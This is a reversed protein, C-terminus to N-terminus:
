ELREDPREIELRGIVYALLDAYLAKAVDNALGALRHDGARHYDALITKLKELFATYDPTPQAAAERWRRLDEVVVVAGHGRGVEGPRACPAGRALWRRLTGTSKRLEAAAVRLPVASV